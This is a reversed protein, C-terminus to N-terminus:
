SEVNVMVCYSVDNMRSSGNRWVSSRTMPSRPGAEVEDMIAMRSMKSLGMNWLRKLSGRWMTVPIRTTITMPRETGLNNMFFWGRVRAPVIARPM